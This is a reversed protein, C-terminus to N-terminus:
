PSGTAIGTLDGPTTQCAAGRAPHPTLGAWGFQEVPGALAWVGHWTVSHAYMSAPCLFCVDRGVKGTFYDYFYQFELTPPLFQPVFGAGAFFGVLFLTHYQGPYSLVLAVYVIKNSVKGCM